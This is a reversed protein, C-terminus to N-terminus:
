MGPIYICNQSGFDDNEKFVHISKDIFMRLRDEPEKLENILAKIQEFYRNVRFRFLELFLEKKSKFHYYLGGKSIKAESAIMNLSTEYYGKENFCRVAAEFIAEKRNKRIQFNTMQYAKWVLGAPRYVVPINNEASMDLFIM